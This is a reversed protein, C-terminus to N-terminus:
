ALDKMMTLPFEVLSAVSLDRLVADRDHLPLVQQFIDMAPDISMM